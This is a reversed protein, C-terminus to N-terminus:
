YEVAATMVLRERVSKEKKREVEEEKNKKLQYIFSVKIFSFSLQNKFPIVM